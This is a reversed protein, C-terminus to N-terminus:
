PIVWPKVRRMRQAAPSPAIPGANRPVLVGRQLLSVDQIYKYKFRMLVLWSCEYTSPKKRRNGTGRKTTTRQDNAEGHTGWRGLAM